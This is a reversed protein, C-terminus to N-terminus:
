RFTEIVRKWLTLDIGFSLYSKVPISDVIEAFLYSINTPKKSDSGGKPHIYLRTFQKFVKRESFHLDLILSM